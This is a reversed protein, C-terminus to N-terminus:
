YSICMFLILLICITFLRRKESPFMFTESFEYIFSMLSLKAVTLMKGRSFHTSPGIVNSNKVGIAKISATRCPHFEHITKTNGCEELDKVLHDVKKFTDRKHNKQRTKKLSKLADLQKIGEIELSNKKSEYFEDNRNLKAIKNDFDENIQIQLHDSSFFSSIDPEYISQLKRVCAMEEIEDIVPTFYCNDFNNRCDYGFNPNNM